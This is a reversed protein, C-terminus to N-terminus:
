DSDSYILNFSDFRLYERGTVTDVIFDTADDSSLNGYTFTAGQSTASFILALSILIFRNFSRLYLM